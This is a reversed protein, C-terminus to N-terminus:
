SAERQDAPQAAPPAAPHEAPADLTAALVAIAYAGDHSVSVSLDRLGLERARADAAGTFALTPAGDDDLRLEVSRYSVGGTPRLVKIAAEKAAFRAALRPVSWGDGSRCTALEDPTYVRQLYRDGFRSISQEVDPVHVLDTGVRLGGASSAGTV